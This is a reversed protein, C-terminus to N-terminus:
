ERRRGYRRRAGEATLGVAAGILSWSLGAERAEGAMEELDLEIQQILLGSRQMVTFVELAEGSLRRAAWPVLAAAGDPTKVIARDAGMFDDELYRGEVPGNANM